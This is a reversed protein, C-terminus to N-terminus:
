LKKDKEEKRIRREELIFLMDAYAFALNHIDHTILHKVLDGVTQFD